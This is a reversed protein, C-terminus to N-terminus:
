RQGHDRYVFEMCRVSGRARRVPMRDSNDVVGELQVRYVDLADRLLRFLYVM